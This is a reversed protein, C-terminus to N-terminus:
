LIENVKSVLDAAASVTLLILGGRVLLTPIRAEAATSLDPWRREAMVAAASVIGLVFLPSALGLALPLLVAMRGIRWKDPHALLWEAGAVMAAGFAAPLVIFMVVALWLPSLFTFDIGGPKIVSAGRVVGFFVAGQLPRRQVPLWRRVVLYLIGLGLGIAAMFVVLFITDTTFEGIIFGDDSAIGRVADTSTLRLVFMALRGGVGGILAGALFGAMAVAAPRGTILGWWEALSPM